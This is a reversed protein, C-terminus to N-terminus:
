YTPHPCGCRPCEDAEKSIRKHCCRCEKLDKKSGFWQQYVAVPIIWSLLGIPFLLVSGIIAVIIMLVFIFLKITTIIPNSKEVPNGYLEGCRGCYKETLDMPYGCSRCNMGEKKM